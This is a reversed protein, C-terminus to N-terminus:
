RFSWSASPGVFKLVSQGLPHEQQSESRSRTRMTIERIGRVSESPPIMRLILDPGDLVVDGNNTREIQYGLQLCFDILSSTAHVDAAVTLGIVDELISDDAPNLIECYRQLIEKRSIGRNTGKLQPNWNALFEPDYEMVWCRLESEYPLAKPTAMSFWPIQKGQYLRTVSKLTPELRSALKEQLARIAGPQDFGFAIGPDGVRHRPFDAIAFFEFYTNVGYFYRRHLDYRPDKGRWGKIALRIRSSLGLEDRRITAM